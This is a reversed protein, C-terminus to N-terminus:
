VELGKAKLKDIEEQPTWIWLVGKDGQLAMGRDELYNLILNLTQHMIKMPLRRKIEEKSLVIEADQLVKEVELVTKLTPYHLINKCSLKNLM